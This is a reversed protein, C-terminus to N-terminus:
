RCVWAAGIVGRACPMWLHVGVFEDRENERSVGLLATLCNPLVVIKTPIGGTRRGSFTFRMDGGDGKGVWLFLAKENGFRRFELTKM